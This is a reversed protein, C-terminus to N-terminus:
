DEGWDGTRQSNITDAKRWKKKTGKQAVKEGTRVSFVVLGAGSVVWEPMMGWNELKERIQKKTGLCNMTKGESAKKSIRPSGGFPSAQDAWYRVGAKGYM